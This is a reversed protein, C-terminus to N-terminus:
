FGSTILETYEKMVIAHWTHDDELKKMLKDLTKCTLKMHM